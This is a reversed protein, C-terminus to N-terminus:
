VANDLSEATRIRVVNDVTSVRVVGDGKHGTELVKKFQM